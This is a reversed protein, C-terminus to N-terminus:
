DASNQDRGRAGGGTDERGHRCVVLAESLEAFADGFTPEDAVSPPDDIAAEAVTPAVNVKHGFPFARDREHFHLRPLAVVETIGHLGYMMSLLTLQRAGSPDPDVAVSADPLLIPEINEPHQDGFPTDEHFM